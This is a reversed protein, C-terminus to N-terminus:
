KWSSNDTILLGVYDKASEFTILCILMLYSYTLPNFRFLYQVINEFQWHKIVGM